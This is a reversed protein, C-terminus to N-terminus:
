NDSEQSPPAGEGLVVTVLPTTDEPSLVWQIVKLAIGLDLASNLAGDDEDQIATYGARATSIDALSKKIDEPTRCPTKAAAPSKKVRNRSQAKIGPGGAAVAESHKKDITDKVEDHAKGEKAEALIEKRATADSVNSLLKGVSFTIEQRDIAELVEPMEAEKNLLNLRVQITQEALGFQRALEALSSGADLLEKIKRAQEVPSWNLRQTNRILADSGLERIVEKRIHERAAEITDEDLDGQLAKWEELKEETISLVSPRVECRIKTLSMGSTAVATHGEGLLLGVIYCRRNGELVRYKGTEPNEMVIPCELVGKELISTKMGAIAEDDGYYERSQLEDANGPRKYELDSHDLLKYTRRVDALTVTPFNNTAAM